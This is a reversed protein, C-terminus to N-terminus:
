KAKKRAIPSHGQTIYLIDPKAFLCREVAKGAKNLVEVEIFPTTPKGEDMAVTSGDTLAQVRHKVTGPTGSVKMTVDYYDGKM